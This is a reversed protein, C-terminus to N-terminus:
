EAKEKGVFESEAAALIRHLLANYDPFNVDRTLETRSEAPRSYFDVWFAWFEPTAETINHNRAFAPYSFGIVREKLYPLVAAM